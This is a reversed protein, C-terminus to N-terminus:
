QNVKIVVADGALGMIAGEQSVDQLHMIVGNTNKLWLGNNAVVLLNVSVSIARCISTGSSLTRRAAPL